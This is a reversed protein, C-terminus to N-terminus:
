AHFKAAGSTIQGGSLATSTPDPPVKPDYPTYVITVPAQGLTAKLFGAHM